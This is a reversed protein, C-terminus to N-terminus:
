DRYVTLTRTTRTPAVTLDVAVSVIGQRATYRTHQEGADKSWGSLCSEVDKLLGAYLEADTEEPWTVRTCSLAAETVTCTGFNPLGPTADWEHISAPNDDWRELKRVAKFGDPAASVYAKLGSCFSAALPIRDKVIQDAQGNKILIRNIEDRVDQDTVPGDVPKRAHDALGGFRSTSAPPDAEVPKAVPAPTSPATGTPHATNSGWDYDSFDLALADVTSPPAVKAPAAAAPAPTSPPPTTPHATNSGWDFNSFDLALADVTSPPAVKAPAAPAAAPTNTASAGGSWDLMSTSVSLRQGVVGDKLSETEVTIRAAQNVALIARMVGDSGRNDTRTWGEVCSRVRAIMAEHAAAQDTGTPHSDCDVSPDGAGWDQVTCRRLGPLEVNATWLMSPFIASPAGKLSSFRTTTAALYIKLTPCLDPAAASAAPTGPPDVSAAPPPAPDEQQPAVPAKARLGALSPRSTLGLVIVSVVAFALHRRM